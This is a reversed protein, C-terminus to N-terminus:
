SRFCGSGSPNDHVDFFSILTFPLSVPILNLDSLAQITSHAKIPHPEIKSRGLAM